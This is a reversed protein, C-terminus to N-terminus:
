WTFNAKERDYIKRYRPIPSHPLIDSPVLERTYPKPLASGHSHLLPLLSRPTKSALNFIDALKNEIISSLAFPDFQQAVSHFHAITKPHAKGSAVTRQFPTKPSDYIKNIKSGTRVKKVLKVSPQFYNQFIHLEHTYLQNIADIVKQTDYRLYGLIQRVQTWNKQEIHANDNKNYPRSRTFAIHNLSCYHYLHANIFESGNDSDIGRLDFPMAQQMSTLANLITEQAKGLVARREVWQTLIDTCNVTYAFDGSASGGCHSVLDIEIYGPLRINWSDTKVPIQHKLIAGPKTSGYVQKRIWQKKSKLRRDMQAPSIALLQAQEISNIHFHKLIWPMWLVITTKLRKSWLYGSAEWVSEVISIVRETYIPKRKKPIPKTEGPPPGNLLRLAHKRHCDYTRCFEDLIRSKEERSKAKRYRVYMVKMYGWKWPSGMNNDERPVTFGHGKPLM